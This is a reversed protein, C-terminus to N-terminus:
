VGRLCLFDYLLAKNEALDNYDPKKGPSTTLGKTFTLLEKFSDSDFLTKGNEWNLYKEMNPILVDALVGMQTANQWLKMGQQEKYIDIM